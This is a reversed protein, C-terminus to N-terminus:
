EVSNYILWLNAQRVALPDLDSCARMGNWPVIGAGVILSYKGEHRLVSQVMGGVGLHQRTGGCGASFYNGISRGSASFSRFSVEM